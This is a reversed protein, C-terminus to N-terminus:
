DQLVSTILIRDGVTRLSTCARDGQVGNASIFNHSFSTAGVKWFFASRVLFVSYIFAILNGAKISRSSFHM